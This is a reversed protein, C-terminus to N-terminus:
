RVGMLSALEEPSLTSRRRTAKRGLLPKSAKRKQPKAEHERVEEAEKAEAEVAALKESVTMPPLNEKKSQNLTLMTQVNPGAPCSVHRPIRSPPKAAHHGSNHDAEVDVSGELSGIGSDASDTFSVNRAQEAAPRANGNSESLATTPRPLKLGRRAPSMALRRPSPEPPIELESENQSEEDIADNYFLREERQEEEQEEEPLAEGGDDDDFMAASLDENKGIVADGNPLVAMSQAFGIHGLEDINVSDGGDLM